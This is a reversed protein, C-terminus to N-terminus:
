LSNMEFYQKVQLCLGLSSFYVRIKLECIHSVRLECNEVRLNWSANQLECSASKLECSALCLILECSVVRLECECSAVRLEYECSAFYRSGKLFCM